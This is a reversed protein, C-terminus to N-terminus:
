HELLKQPLYWFVKKVFGKEQVDSGRGAVEQIDDPTPQHDLINETCRWSFGYEPLNSQWAVLVRYEFVDQINTLDMVNPFYAVGLITYDM